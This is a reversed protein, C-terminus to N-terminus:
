NLCQMREKVAKENGTLLNRLDELKEQLDNIQPEFKDGDLDEICRVVKEECEEFSRRLEQTREAWIKDDLKTLMDPRYTKIKGRVLKIQVRMEKVRKLLEEEM